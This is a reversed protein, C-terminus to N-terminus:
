VFIIMNDVFGEGDNEMVDFEVFELLIIYVFDDFVFKNDLYDLVVVEVEVM